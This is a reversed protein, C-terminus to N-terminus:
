RKNLYHLIIGSAVSVNLSDIEEIPIKVKTINELNLISQSVGRSENGFVVVYKDFTPIDDLSIADELTTVILRYGEEQLRILDNFNSEVLNLYFLAGQTANIVKENYFSVCKPSLLIDHYGFALATRLITGLNGPDRVNDLYILKQSTIPKIKLEYCVAIVSPATKHSSLKKLIPLNVIFQPINLDKLPKLTFLHKVLNANLAMELLHEGEILFLGAEKQYKNQKLKFADVVHQNTKSTLKTIM